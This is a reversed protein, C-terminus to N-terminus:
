VGVRVVSMSSSGDLPSRDENFRSEETLHHETPHAPATLAFTTVYMGAGARCTSHGSLIIKDVSRSMSAGNGADWSISEVTAPLRLGHGPVKHFITKEDM